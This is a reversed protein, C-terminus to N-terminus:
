NLTSWTESLQVGNVFTDTDIVGSASVLSPVAYFRQVERRLFVSAQIRQIYREHVLDPVHRAPGIEVFGMLASRLAFLNQPIQFGDRLYGYTKFDNPGYIAVSVELLEHRLSVSPGNSMSSSQWFYGNADPSATEVGIAMWDVSIDPQDPPEAQWKPRVMTGPLGTIGVFVTQLFQNFTLKPSVPTTSTPLVYASM